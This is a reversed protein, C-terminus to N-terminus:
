VFHLYYINGNHRELRFFERESRALDQIVDLRRKNVEVEWM